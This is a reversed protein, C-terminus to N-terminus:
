LKGTVIGQVFRQYQSEISGVLDDRIPQWKPSNSLERLAEKDSESNGFLDSPNAIRERLERVKRDFTDSTARMEWNASTARRVHYKDPSDDHSDATLSRIMLLMEVFDLRWDIIFDDAIHDSHNFFRLEQRVENQKERSRAWVYIGIVLLVIVAVIEM